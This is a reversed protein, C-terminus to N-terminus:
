NKVCRISYGNGNAYKFWFIKENDYYLQRLWSNLSNYSSSTWWYGSYNIEVFQGDNHRYGGPLANFKSENTSNKNSNWGSKSKLKVGASMDGGQNNSLERWDEINPIHWGSPALGRSDNVAYWNYLKGYKKGNKPDNDYYCWAPQKNDGAEVWEEKTKVQPIPDGNRFEDVNLNNNMWIQNGIQISNFSNGNQDTFEKSSNENNSNYYAQSSEYEAQEQQRNYEAEDYESSRGNEFSEIEDDLDGLEEKNSDVNWDPNFGLEKVKNQFYERAKSNLEMPLDNLMILGEQFGLPYANICRDVKLMEEFRRNENQFQNAKKWESCWYVAVEDLYSYLEQENSIGTVSYSELEDIPQTLYTFRTNGNEVTSTQENEWKEKFYFNYSTIGIFGVFLLIGLIYRGYSHNTKSSNLEQVYEKEVKKEDGSKTNSAKQEITHQISSVNESKVSENAIPEDKQNETKGSILESKYRDFEEQTLLGDDLLNKLETLKTIKDM